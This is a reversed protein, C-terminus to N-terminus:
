RKEQEPWGSPWVLDAAMRADGDVGPKQIQWGLKSITFRTAIRHTKHRLRQAKERLFGFSRRTLGPKELRKKPLPSAVM